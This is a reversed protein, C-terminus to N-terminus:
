ATLHTYSVPFPGDDKGSGRPFRTGEDDPHVGCSVLGANVIDDGQDVMRLFQFRADLARDRICM